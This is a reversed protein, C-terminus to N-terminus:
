HDICALMSIGWTVIGQYHGMGRAVFVRYAPGGLELKLVQRDVRLGQFAFIVYISHLAELESDKATLVLLM